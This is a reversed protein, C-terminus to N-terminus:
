NGVKFEKWTVTSRGALDTTAARLRYRGAREIQFQVEVTAPARRNPELATVRGALARYDEEAPGYLEWLVMGNYYVGSRDTGTKYYVPADGEAVRARGAVTCPLGSRAVSVEVTLQPARGAPREPVRPGRLLASRGDTRIAVDGDERVQVVERYGDLRLTKLDWLLDFSLGLRRCREIETFFNGMVQRYRIGYRNTRELNLEALGWLNGRGLHTHGLNYGPPLLLAM